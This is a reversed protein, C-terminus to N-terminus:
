RTAQKLDREVVTQCDAPLDNFSIMRGLFSYLDGDHEECDPEFVSNGHQCFGQPHFPAGSMSVCSGDPWVVGYRDVTKGGNDWYRLDEKDIAEPTPTHKDDTMTGDGQEYM